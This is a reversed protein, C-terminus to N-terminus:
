AGATLFRRRLRISATVMFQVILQVETLFPHKLVVLGVLWGWGAFVLTLGFRLASMDMNGGDAVILVLPGALSFLTVILSPYVVGLFESITFNLHKRAFHIAILMQVPLSIFQSLAMALVGYTSASCLAIAAASRSLLSSLFADRNKGLALLLPNTVIVAFWFVAALAMLRVLLIAEEWQSGLVLHVIPDATVAIMLVGPLYLVSLYSLTNLYAQKINEGERVSAALAPFAMAYFASMIIRDPIGCVTNARNYLGVSTMSIVKGLILQPVNEYIRDITQSAGKFFGFTYVAKWSVLSPRCSSMLSFPTVFATLLALTISNALMGWGYSLYGFGLMGLSITTLASLLLAVTRINALVGFAMNRRLVAIVPQSIVEAFASMMVLFLFLPLEPSDYFSAIEPSLAMLAVTILATILFLATFSTRLDNQDIERKQILFEPTVFERLSLVIAGIGIGTVAHGVADPTLLRAMTAIVTVNIILALYQEISSMVFARRTASM